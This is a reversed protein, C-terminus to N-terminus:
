LDDVTEGGAITILAARLDPSQDFDILRVSGDAFVAHTGDRHSFEADGSWHVLLEVGGDQPAMWPIASAPPLEVFMLTTATVDTIEELRRSEEPLFCANSGVMAAYTTRNSRPQLEPCRYTAPITELAAANAPDDWPKSLDITKYLPAQDLFPLILTRWSHLPQGDSDVTYAPPLAGYTSEYNHIALAIQKMNNKCYLRRAAPSRASRVTPLLLVVLLGVIAIVIVLEIWHFGSRHSAPATRQERRM